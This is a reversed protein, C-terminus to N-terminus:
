LSYIRIETHNQSIYISISKYQCTARLQVSRRNSALLVHVVHNRDIKLEYEVVATKAVVDVVAAKAALCLKLAL